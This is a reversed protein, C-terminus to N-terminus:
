YLNQFSNAQVYQHLQAAKKATKLIEAGQEVNDKTLCRIHMSTNM